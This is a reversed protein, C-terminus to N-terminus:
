ERDQGEPLTSSCKERRFDEFLIHEFITYCFSGAIGLVVIVSILQWQVPTRFIGEWFFYFLMMPLGWFVLTGLFRRLFSQHVNPPPLVRKVKAFFRSM